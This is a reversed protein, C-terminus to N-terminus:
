EKTKNRIRRLLKMALWSRRPRREAAAKRDEGLHDRAQAAEEDLKARSAEDVWHAVILRPDGGWGM